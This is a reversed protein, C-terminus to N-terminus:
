LPPLNTPPTPVSGNGGRINKIFDIIGIVENQNEKIWGFLNIATDKAKEFGSPPIIDYDPISEMDEMYFKYLEMANKVDGKCMMLCQSKLSAKSTPRIMKIM